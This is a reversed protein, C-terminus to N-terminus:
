RHEKKSELNFVYKKKSRLYLVTSINFIITIPWLSFSLFIKWLWLWSFKYEKVALDISLDCMFMVFAGTLYIALLIM